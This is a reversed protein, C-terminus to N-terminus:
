GGYIVVHLVLCTSRTSKYAPECYIGHVLGYIKILAIMKFLTSCKQCEKIKIGLLVATHVSAASICLHSVMNRGHQVLQAICLHSVMNRGHQRVGAAGEREADGAGRAPDAAGRVECQEM